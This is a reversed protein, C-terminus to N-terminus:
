EQSALLDFVAITGVIVDDLLIPVSQGVPYDTRKAYKPSLGEAEPDAYVEIRAEVINVIWYSPIGARAYIRSKDNRDFALSSDSVEIVIGFDTANPLRGDCTTEDGRLVAADPEPESDGLSLAGQIQLYWGHPLRRALRVTLRRLSSEHPPNRTSKEVLFGELLEVPEGEQVIGYQVLQHYQHPTFRRFGAVSLLSSRLQPLTNMRDRVEHQDRQLRQTVKADIM